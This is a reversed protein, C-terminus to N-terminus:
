CVDNELKAVEALSIDNIIEMADVDVNNSEMLIEYEQDEYVSDFAKGLVRDKHSNSTKPIDLRVYTNEEVKFEDDGQKKIEWCNVDDNNNKGNEVKNTKESLLEIEEM